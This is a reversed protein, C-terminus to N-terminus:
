RFGAQELKSLRTGSGGKSGGGFLGGLFGGGGGSGSGSPAVLIFQGAQVQQAAQLVRSAAKADLRSAGRSSSDSLVVM